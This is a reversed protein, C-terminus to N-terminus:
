GRVTGTNPKGCNTEDEDSGDVCHPFRDCETYYSGTCYGDNCRFGDCYAVHKTVIVPLPVSSENACSNYPCKIRFRCIEHVKSVLLSVAIGKMMNTSVINDRMAYNMTQIVIDMVYFSDRCAPQSIIVDTANYM